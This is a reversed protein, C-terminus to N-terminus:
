PDCLFGNWKSYEGTLLRNPTRLLYTFLNGLESREMFGIKLTAAIPLCALFIQLILWPDAKPGFEAQSIKNLIFASIKYM